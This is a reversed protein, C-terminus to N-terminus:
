GCATTNYNASRLIGCLDVRSIRWKGGIDIFHVTTTRIATGTGDKDLQMAATVTGDHNDFVPNVVGYKAAPNEHLAKYLDPIAARFAEGDQILALRVDDPLTPDLAQKIQTDLEAAGPIPLRAASSARASATLAQYASSRAAAIEGDSEGSGCAGVAAVAALCLVGCATRRAAITIM